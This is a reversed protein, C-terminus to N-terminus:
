RKRKLRLCGNTCADSRGCRCGNPLFGEDVLVVERGGQRAQAGLGRFRAKARSRLRVVLKFHLLRIAFSTILWIISLPMYRGFEIQIRNSHIFSHSQFSSTTLRPRGKVRVPVCRESGRDRQPISGPPGTNINLESM